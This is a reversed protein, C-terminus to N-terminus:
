PNAAGAAQKREEKRARERKLNEKNQRIKEATRVADNHGFSCNEKACKDGWRCPKKLPINVRIAGGTPERLQKVVGILEGYLATNQAHLDKLDAKVELLEQKKEALEAKLTQIHSKQGEVASQWAKSTETIATTGFQGLERVLASFDTSHLALQRFLDAINYGHQKYVAISNEVFEYTLAPIEAM